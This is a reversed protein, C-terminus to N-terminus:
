RRAATHHIAALRHFRVWGRNSHQERLRDRCIEGTPRCGAACNSSLTYEYQDCMALRPWEKPTTFDRLSKDPNAISEIAYTQCVIHVEM